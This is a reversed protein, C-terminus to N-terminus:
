FLEVLILVLILVLIFYENLVRTLTDWIEAEITNNLKQSVGFTAYGRLSGWEKYTNHTVTKPISQKIASNIIKQISTNNIDYQNFNDKLVDENDLIWKNQFTRKRTENDVVLERNPTSSEYWPETDM